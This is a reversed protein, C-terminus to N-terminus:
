DVNDEDKLETMSNFSSNESINRNKQKMISDIKNKISKMVKVSSLTKPSNRMIVNQIINENGKSQNDNNKEFFVSYFYDSFDNQEVTYKQLERSYLDETLIKRGNGIMTSSASGLGSENVKRFKSIDSANSLRKNKKNKTGINNNQVASPTFFKEWNFQDKKIGQNNRENNNNIAYLNNKGKNNNRGHVPMFPSLSKREINLKSDNEQDKKDMETNGAEQYNTYLNDIQQQLKHKDKEVNNSDLGLVGFIKPNRQLIEYIFQTNLISKKLFKIMLLQTNKYGSFSINMKELIDLEVEIDYINKEIQELIDILQDKTQIKDCTKLKENIIKYEEIQELIEKKESNLELDFDKSNNLRKRKYRKKLQIMKLSHYIISANVNKLQSRHRLRTILKYSKQEMDTLISKQTIYKMTMSIFYIGVIASLIIFVRGIHTKPYFDGFAVTTMSIFLCWFANWRYNWLQRSTTMGEWYYMEFYRVFLGFTYITLLFIFVLSIFPYKKQYAKVNFFFDPKISYKLLIKEIKPIRYLSYVNLLKLVYFIRFSLFANFLSSLPYIIVVDSQRVRFSYSANPYPLLALFIFDLLVSFFYTSNYFRNIKQLNNNNNAVMNDNKTEENEPNNEKNLSIIENELREEKYYQLYWSSFYLIFVVITLVLIIIRLNKSIQPIKLSIQFNSYSMDLTNDLKFTSESINHANLIEANTMNHFDEINNNIMYDRIIKPYKTHTKQNENKLCYNFLLKLNVYNDDFVENWSISNNNNLANILVSGAIRVENNYKYYEEDEYQSLVHTIIVIITGLLDFLKILNKLKNMKEFKILNEKEEKKLSSDNNEKNARNMKNDQNLSILSSSHSSSNDNSDDDESILEDQSEFSHDQYHHLKVNKEQDKFRNKLDIEIGELDKNAMQNNPNGNLEELYPNNRSLLLFM